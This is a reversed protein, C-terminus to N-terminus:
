SLPRGTSVMLVLLPLLADLAFHAAMMYPLV